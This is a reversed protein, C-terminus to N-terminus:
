VQQWTHSGVPPSILLLWLGEAQSIEAWGGVGVDMHRASALM